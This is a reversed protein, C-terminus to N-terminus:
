QLGVCSYINSLLIGLAGVAHINQQSASETQTDLNVAVVSFEVLSGHGTKYPLDCSIKDGSHM